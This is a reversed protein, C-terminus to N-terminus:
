PGLVDEIQLRVPNQFLQGRTRPYHAIEVRQQSDALRHVGNAVEILELLLNQSQNKFHNRGLASGNQQISFPFLEGRNKGTVAGARCDFRHADAASYSALHQFLPDRDQSRVDRRGGTQSAHLAQHDRLNAGQQANRQDHELFHGAADVQICGIGGATKIFIVKLQHRGNGSSGGYSQLIGAPQLPQFLLVEPEVRFDVQFVIQHSFADPHLLNVLEQRLDRGRIGGHQNFAFASGPFFQRCPGNM